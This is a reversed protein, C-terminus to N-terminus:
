YDIPVALGRKPSYGVSERHLAELTELTPMSRPFRECLDRVWLVFDDAGQKRALVRARDLRVAYKAELRGVPGHADSAAQRVVEARSTDMVIRLADIRDAEARDFMVMYQIKSAM